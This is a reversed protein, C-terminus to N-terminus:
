ALGWDIVVTEGFPGVLVNSPKLDRHIVGQSHAYAVAEVAAIVSPLIALRDRLSRCGAITEKLSHGDVRRMAYFPAGDPWVGAEYVSVIAPHQLRATILAEREFRRRLSPDDGILEKIAVPRGLRRDQADVIRGMGGRAFEAGLDYHGASVPELSPKAAPRGRLGSPTAPATAAEALPRPEATLTEAHADTGDSKSM